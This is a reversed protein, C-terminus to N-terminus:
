FPLGDDEHANRSPFLYQDILNKAEESVVFDDQHTKISNLLKTTEEFLIGTRDQATDVMLVLPSSNFGCQMSAKEDYSYIRFTNGWIFDDLEVLFITGINLNVQYIGKVDPYSEDVVWNPGFMSNGNNDATFFFDTEDTPKDGHNKWHIKGEDTESKLKGVFSVVKKLDKTPATLDRNLLDDINIYFLKAIMWVIDVSIRKKSESGMTRSVYGPSVGLLTELDSIKMRERKVLLELNESFYKSDFSELTDSFAKQQHEQEQIAQAVEDAEDDYEEKEAGLADYLQRLKKLHDRGKVYSELDNVKYVGLSQLTPFVYPHEDDFYYFM